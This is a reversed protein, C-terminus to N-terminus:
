SKKTKQNILYDMKNVNIVYNNRLYFMKQVAFELLEVSKKM